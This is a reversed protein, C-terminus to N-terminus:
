YSPDYFIPEQFILMVAYEFSLPPRTLKRSRVELRDKLRLIIISGPGHPCVRSLNNLLLEIPILVNRVPFLYM